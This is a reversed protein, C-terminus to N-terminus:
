HDMEAAHVAYGAHGFPRHRHGNIRLADFDETSRQIRVILGKLDVISAIPRRSQINEAPSMLAAIVFYDEYGKIAGSAILQTYVISAELPSEFLDPLEVITNDYFREPTYGPLIFAIDVADDAVLQPQEIALGLFESFYIDIELLGKAEANVADVFPKVNALYILSRDSSILSLKLRIPEASAAPLSVLTALLVAARAFNGVM